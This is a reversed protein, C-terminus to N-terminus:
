NLIDISKKRHNSKTNSKSHVVFFKFLVQISHKVENEFTPFGFKIRFYDDRLFNQGRVSYFSDFMYKLVLSSNETSLQTSCFVVENIEVADKLGSQYGPSFVNSSTSFLTKTRTM